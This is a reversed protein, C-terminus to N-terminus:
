VNDVGLNGFNNYNHWIRIGKEFLAKFNTYHDDPCWLNANLNTVKIYNYNSRTHMYESVPLIESLNYGYASLFNDIYVSDEYSPSVQRVILKHFSPTVNLFGTSSGIKVPQSRLREVLTPVSSLFGVAGGAIAGTAGGIFSTSTAGQITSQIIDGTGQLANITKNLGTNVDIVANTNAYYPCNYDTEFVNSYKGIILKYGSTDFTNAQVQLRIFNDTCHEPKLAINVGNQNHVQYSNCLSTLLKKNKPVYGNALSTKNLNIDCYPAKNEPIQHMGENLGWKPRAYIGSIENTHDYFRDVNINVPSAEPVGLGVIILDLINKWDIQIADEASKTFGKLMSKLQESDNAVTVFEGSVWYGNSRGGYIYDTQAQNTISTTHLTWKPTWDFTDQGLTKFANPEGGVPENLTYAGVIDDSSKIHAREIYSRYFTCDYVYQQFVDLELYLRTNGRALIEFNTVYCCYPTDSFDSDMIIYAYNIKEFNKVMGYIDIYQYPNFAIINGQQKHLTEKMFNDRTEKSSFMMVNEDNSHWKVAGLYVTGNINGNLYSM